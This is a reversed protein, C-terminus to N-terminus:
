TPIKPIKHKDYVGGKKRDKWHSHSFTPEERDFEKLLEKRVDKWLEFIQNRAAERETPSVNEHGLREILGYIDKLPEFPYLGVEMNSEDLNCFVGRVDDIASSLKVMVNLYDSQEPKAVHTYIISYHVAEILKSWLVRLQQLYASRRQVCYGLWAAPIAILLPISDKFTSYAVRDTSQNNFSIFWFLVILGVFYLIAAIFQQRIIKKTM